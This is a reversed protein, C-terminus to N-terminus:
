NLKSIQTMRKKTTASIEKKEKLEAEALDIEAQVGVDVEHYLERVTALLSEAEKAKSVSDQVEKKKRGGEKFMWWMELQKPFIMPIIYNGIFALAAMLLIMFIFFRIM